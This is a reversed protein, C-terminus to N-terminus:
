INGNNLFFNCVKQSVADEQTRYFHDSNEILDLTKPSAIPEFGKLTDKETTAFDNNSYIFLKPKRSFQLYDLNYKGFPTSISAVAAISANKAGISMGVISGFSYGAIYIKDTDNLQSVLFNLAAQADM